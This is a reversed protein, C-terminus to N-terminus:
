TTLYAKWLDPLADDFVARLLSGDKEGLRFPGYGRTGALRQVKRGRIAAKKRTRVLITAPLVDEVRREEKHAGKAGVKGRRIGAEGDEWISNDEEEVHQDLNLGERQGSGWWQNSVTALGKKPLGQKFDDLYTPINARLHFQHHMHSRHDSHTPRFPHLHSTHDMALGVNLQKLSELTTSREAPLQKAVTPGGSTTTRTLIPGRQQSAKAM